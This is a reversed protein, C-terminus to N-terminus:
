NAMKVEPLGLDQGFKDIYRVPGLHLVQINMKPLIQMLLLRYAKVVKKKSVDVAKLIEEVVRPIGHIKMSIFICLEVEM